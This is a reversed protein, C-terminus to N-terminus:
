GLAMEYCSARGRFHISPCHNTDTVKSCTNLICRCSAWLVVPPMQESWNIMIYDMFTVFPHLMLNLEFM